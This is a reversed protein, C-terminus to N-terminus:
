GKTIGYLTFTSHQAFNGGTQQFLLENIGTSNRYLGASLTQGQNNILSTNSESVSNVIIQKANSTTYNSIYYETNGFTNATAGSTPVSGAILGTQSSARNSFATGGNGYLQTYSYLASADNNLYMVILDAQLSNPNAAGRSSIVVQLDTFSQPINKFNVGSVGGSGVTQTYIPQLFVSM